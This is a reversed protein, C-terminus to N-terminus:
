RLLSLVNQPAQNAQALMSTAAQVLINNRTYETMEAAMDVDRIRSEAAQLNEASTDLNNIKHELRNQLAGFKARQTSVADIADNVTEIAQSANAQTKIDTGNIGLGSATMDDMALSMTDGKNAGTQITMGPVGATVVVSASGNTSGFLATNLADQSAWDAADLGSIDLTVGQALTVSADGKTVSQGGITATPAPDAGGSITYKFDEDDAGDYLGRLWWDDISTGLSVTIAGYDGFDLESDSGASVSMAGTSAVTSGSGDVLSFTMAAMDTGEAKLYYDGNYAAGATIPQTVTAGVIAFTLIPTVGYLDVSGTGAVATGADWDAVTAINIAGSSATADASVTIGVALGTPATTAASSVTGNLLTRGNFQTNNAIDDVESMLQQYEADLAARDTTNDNTDSSAQVSLERMRQLISHTETLAGEATQILSVADESNKSAMNLGRIQARMKESIALGAADDGARNIRSGSSLKGTAKAAKSNNIAYQRHTNMAMLNNNIRM